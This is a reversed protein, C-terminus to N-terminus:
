IRDQPGLPPPSSFLIKQREIETVIADAMAGAVRDFKKIVEIELDLLKPFHDFSFDLVRKKLAAGQTEATAAPEPINTEDGETMKEIVAVLAVAQTKVFALCAKTQVDSLAGFGPYEAFCYSRVIHALENIKLRKAQGKREQEMEEDLSGYTGREGTRKDLWAGSEEYREEKVWEKNQKKRGRLGWVLLVLVVFGFLIGISM